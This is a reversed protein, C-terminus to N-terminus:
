SAAGQAAMCRQYRGDVRDAFWATTLKRTIKPSKLDIRPMEVRPLAHGAQRDAAAFVKRYLESQGFASNKELKLDRQIDAASMGIKSAIALAARQSGATQGGQYNLLDGDLALKHGSLRALAAQFAANRSSYRGANFDAFRYKMDQYPAPYQLLIAAGFYVGGRRSFVEHRISGQVPYPYPWVRAHGEAFEVSVQMPGGTRIPNKMEFPLGMKRAEKAMDEYLLNMERETRLNDIRTKYSQGNPSTKLLATKVVTLPVLYRHAKEEIKGWVIKDLGPVVPDGQWSSEQEIVAALACSYEATAPIQLHRFASDIDNIWGQRDHAKAPVARAIVQRGMPPAAKSPPPPVPQPASVAPQPSAPAPLMPEPASAIPPVTEQPASAIPALPAACAALLLSLSIPLFRKM